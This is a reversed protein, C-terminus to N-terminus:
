SVAKVRLETWTEAARRYLDEVLGHGGHEDITRRLGGPTEILLASHAGAISMRYGDATDEIIYKM